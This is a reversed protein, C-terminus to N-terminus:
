LLKLELDGLASYFSNLRSPDSVLDSIVSGCSTDFYSDNKHEKQDWDSAGEKKIAWSGKKSLGCAVNLTPRGHYSIKVACAYRM